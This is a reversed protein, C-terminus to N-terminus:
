TKDSLTLLVEKKMAEIIERGLDGRLEQQVVERVMDRLVFDDFDNAIAFSDSAAMPTDYPIEAEDELIEPEVKPIDVRMHPYLILVKSVVKNTFVPPVEVSPTESDDVSDSFQVRSEERVMKRIAALISTLDDQDSVEM